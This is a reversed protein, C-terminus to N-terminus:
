LLLVAHVLLILMPAEPHGRSCPHRLQVPRGRALGKLSEWNPQMESVLSPSLGLDQTNGKQFARLSSLTGTM